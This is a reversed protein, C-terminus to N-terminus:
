RMAKPSAPRTFALAERSWQDARETEYQRDIAELMHRLAATKKKWDVGFVRKSIAQAPLEGDRCDLVDMGHVLFNLPVRARRHLWLALRFWAPGAALSLSAHFPARVGPAVSVPIELILPPAIRAVPSPLSHMSLRRSLIAESHRVPRYFAEPKPLYPHNPAWAARGSSYSAAPHNARGPKSASRARAARIIQRAAFRMAFGWPSPLLSSDYLFGAERAQEMLAESMGYGPSRFGVPTQGSVSALREQSLAIEEQIAEPASWPLDLRHSHSHNAIEHGAAVIERVRARRQPQDMDRGIVFFSTPISLAAFLELLRPIAVDWVADSGATEPPKTLDSFGYARRVAWLSDVDVQIFAPARRM